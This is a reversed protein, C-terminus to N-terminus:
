YGTCPLCIIFATGKGKKSFPKIKGNMIECLQKSIHLGLGLGDRRQNSDKSFQEFRQFVRMLNEDSIGSGTDTISIKLVGYQTTNYMISNELHMMVCNKKEFIGDEEFPYPEFLKDDTILKDPMWEAFLNISGKDTYKVSNSIINLLIQFIRYSDIRLTSPLNNSLIMNGTLAKKNILSLTVGWFENFFNKTSIFTPTFDIKGQEVKNIDLFSNSLYYLINSCVKINQICSKAGEKLTTTDILGVNTIIQSLINRFEHFHSFLYLNKNESDIRQVETNLLLRHERSTKKQILSFIIGIVVLGFMSSIESQKVYSQVSTALIEEEVFHNYHTKTMYIQMAISFYLMIKSDTFYYVLVPMVLSNSWMSVAASKINCVTYYPVLFVELLVLIRFILIASRCTLIFTILLISWTIVVIIGNNTPINCIYKYLTVAVVLFIVTLLMLLVERNREYLIKRQLENSTSSSPPTCIRTLLSDM